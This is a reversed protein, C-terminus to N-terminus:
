VGTNALDVLINGHCPLPACYCGLVQGRLSPMRKLIANRQAQRFTTFKEGVLWARYNSIAQRRGGCSSGRWPNGFVSPRGIYIDYPDKKCHVVFDSM